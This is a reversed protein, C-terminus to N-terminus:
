KLVVTAPQKGPDIRLARLAPKALEYAGVSLGLQSILCTAITLINDVLNSGKLLMPVLTVALSLVSAVVKPNNGIFPIRKLLAVVFTIIPAFLLCQADM